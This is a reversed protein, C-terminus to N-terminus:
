FTRHESQVAAGIRANREIGDLLHLLGQFVRLLRRLNNNIGVSWMGKVGIVALAVSPLRGFIAPLAQLRPEFIVTHCLDGDLLRVGEHMKNSVVLVM